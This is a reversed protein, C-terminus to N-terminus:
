VPAEQKQLFNKAYAMAKVGEGHKIWKVDMARFWTLQRKAFRRTNQQIESVMLGKNKEGRLYEVIEKYGIARLPAISPSCGSSLIGEVEKLWGAEFMQEVRNNIRDYLVSRDLDMCFCLVNHDNKRFGHEAHLDSLSKGGARLVELGRVIRLRDNPHLRNALLPDGAKLELRLAEAEGADWLAEIEQRLEEDRGPGPALGRILIKLYMATGGVVLVSRNRESIEKIAQEAEVKFRAVNYFDEPDAVDILHHPIRSQESATPKATGIDFRRYVQMSDASVIEADLEEALSLSLETKGSATPGTVIILDAM